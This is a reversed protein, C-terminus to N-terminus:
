VVVEASVQVFRVVCTTSNWGEEGATTDWGLQLLADCLKGHYPKIKAIDPSAVVFLREDRGSNNRRSFVLRHPTAHHESTYLTLTCESPSIPSRPASFKSSLEQLLEMRRFDCWYGVLTALSVPCDEEPMGAFAHRLLCTESAPYDPFFDVLPRKQHKEAETKLFSLLNSM